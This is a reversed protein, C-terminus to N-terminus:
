EPLIGADLAREGRETVRYVVEGTVAEVLGREALVEFRSEVYPTHMGIRNAVIAPYEPERDALFALITADAPRSWAPQSPAAEHM